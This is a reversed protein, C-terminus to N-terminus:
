AVAFSTPQNPTAPTTTVAPENSTSATSGGLARNAATLFYAADQNEPDFALVNQARDEVLDWDSRGVAQEAVDLLGEITRQVRESAMIPLYYTQPPANDM